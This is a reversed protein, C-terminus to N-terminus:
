PALTLTTGTLRSLLDSLVAYIEAGDIRSVWRDGDLSFNDDLRRGTVFLRGEAPQVNIVMILEGERYLSLILDPIRSGEIAVGVDDAARQVSREIRVLEQVAKENREAFDM